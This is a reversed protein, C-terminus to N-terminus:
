RRSCLRRGLGAGLRRAYLYVLPGAAGLSLLVLAQFAALPPLPALAIMLPHLAGPRYSALLPSGSFGTPNWSPLEGRSYARWVEVRLPLHLATGDRPALM